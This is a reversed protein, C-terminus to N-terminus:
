PKLIVVISPTLSITIEISDIKFIGVYTTILSVFKNVLRIFLQLLKSPAARFKQILSSITATVAYGISLAKDRQALIQGQIMEPHEQLSTLSKSTSREIIDKLNDDVEELERVYRELEGLDRQSIDESM